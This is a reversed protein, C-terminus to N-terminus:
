KFVTGTIWKFIERLAYSKTGPLLTDCHNIFEQCFSKKHFVPIDKKVQELVKQNEGLLVDVDIHTPIKWVFHYNGISGGLTLASSLLFHFVM